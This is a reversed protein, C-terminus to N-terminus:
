GAKKERSLAIKQAASLNDTNSDNIVGKAQSGGGGSGSKDTVVYLGPIEKRLVSGVLESVSAMGTKGAERTMLEIGDSGFVRVESKGEANKVRRVLGKAKIHSLLLSGGGEILKVKGIEDAISRDVTLADIEAEREALQRQLPEVEATRKEELQRTISAIKAKTKDDPEGADIAELRKLAERAKAADLGEFAKQSAKLNSEADDARKREAKVTSRLGDTNDLRLGEVEEVALTFMGDEGKTYEAKLTDSLKAHDEPKLRAKLAM